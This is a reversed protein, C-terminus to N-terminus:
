PKVEVPLPTLFHSAFEGITSHAFRCRLRIKPAVPSPKEKGNSITPHYRPRMDIDDSITIDYRWNPNPNPDPNPNPNPDIDDSITIDYRWNPAITVLFLIFCIISLPRLITGNSM